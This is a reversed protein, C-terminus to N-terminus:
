REEAQDSKPIFLVSLVRRGKTRIVRFRGISTEIVDNKQLLRESANMIFAAVTEAKDEEDQPFELDLQDILRSLPTEAEVMYWREGRISRSLQRIPEPKVTEHEDYMEGFLQEVVDEMCVIGAFEGYEDIIFAMQQKSKQFELFLDDIHLTEPVFLPKRSYLSIPGNERKDVIARLVDRVRIIGTINDPTDRYLPVRSFGSEVIAALSKSLPMDEPLRFVDSRHTMITRVQTESFHLVKEMLGSEYEDLVGEDEATDVIHLIGEVSTEKKKSGSSFIRSIENSFTRFIVVFPFLVITLFRVPLAMTVAIRVNHNIAIQKPTIEGFILILLTLVGTAIGVYANGFYRITFSTVLASVSINVINNGILITTLLLDPKSALYTATRAQKGKMEEIEKKQILSLSTFATETGSFLASLFILVVSIFLELTM